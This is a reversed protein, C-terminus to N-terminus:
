SVEAMAKRALKIMEWYPPLYGNQKRSAEIMPLLRETILAHRKSFRSNRLAAAADMGEPIPGIGGFANLFVSYAKMVRAIPLMYWAYDLTKGSDAEELMVDIVVNDLRDKFLTEPDRWEAVVTLQPDYELDSPEQTEFHRVGFASLWSKVGRSSLHSIGMWLNVGYRRYATSAVESCFLKTSDRFDMTFDYPIHEGQVRRLMELAAKHPLQPDAVLAPLDARLRLVMVRLKTDKLYQDIDAIAVGKEIHSEIISVKGTQDDVHVLAVHSFNGPYDNGRAILASTPAGGRSVLIDGSHITVGLIKASPTQSPENDALMLAPISDKPVQMMVEELATRGGYLLRYMRNRVAASNLDWHTSQKKVAARLLSYLESYRTLFQPCAAVLVGLDFMRNEIDSFIVAEAPLPAFSITQVQAAAQDLTSDIVRDLQQCGLARATKFKSELITWYADQNWAFPQREGPAVSPPKSPPIPLLLYLATVAIIVRSAARWLKTKEM